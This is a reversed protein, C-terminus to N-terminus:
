GAAAAAAAPALDSVVFAAAAAALTEHPCRRRRPRPRRWAVVPLTLLHERTAASAPGFARVLARDTTEPPGTVLHVGWLVPPMARTGAALVPLLGTSSHGEFLLRMLRCATATAGTTTTTAPTAPKRKLPLRLAPFSTERRSEVGGRLLFGPPTAAFVAPDRERRGRRASELCAARTRPLLFPFLPPPSARWSGAGAGRPCTAAVTLAVILPRFGHILLPIALMPTSASVLGAFSTLRRRCAGRGTAAVM